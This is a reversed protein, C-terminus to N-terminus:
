KTEKSDSSNTEGGPRGDQRAQQEKKMRRDIVWYVGFMLAGMGLFEFPVKSLSAWTLKPLPEQGMNEEPGPAPWGPSAAPPTELQSDQQWGLFGLPIDSIYLVSTGGIDTEGNVRHLYLDPQAAIRRHAEALLDDRSGQITAQRPCAAVCATKEGNALLDFCMNCKHIYPAASNWEYKPIGFPCAMMCYRCGMCLGRDYTVPGETTKRLAGVVCASACAPDLCHRCQKKVYKLKGNSSRIVISTWRNWGMGDGSHQRMPIFEDLRNKQSCAKVCSECGICRTTDILLGLATM